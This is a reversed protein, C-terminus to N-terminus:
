LITSDSYLYGSSVSSPVIVVGSGGLKISIVSHSIVMDNPPISGPFFVWERGHLSPQPIPYHETLGAFSYAGSYQHFPEILLM